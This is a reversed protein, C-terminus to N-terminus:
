SDVSECRSVSRDTDNFYHLIKDHSTRVISVDKLQDGHARGIRHDLKHQVFIQRIQGDPQTVALKFDALRPQLAVFDMNMATHKNYARIMRSIQELALLSTFHPTAEDPCVLRTSQTIPPLWGDFSVQSWPNVYAPGGIAAARIRRIVEPLITIPMRSPLEEPNAVYSRPDLPLKMGPMRGATKYTNPILEVYDTDAAHLCVFFAAHTLQTATITPRQSHADRGTTSKVDFLVLKHPRSLTRQRQWLDFFRDAYNVEVNYSGSCDIVGDLAAFEFSRVIYPSSLLAEFVIGEYLAGRNQVIQQDLATLSTM